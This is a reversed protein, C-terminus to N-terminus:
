IPVEKEIKKKTDEGRSVGGVDGKSRRNKRRKAVYFVEEDAYKPLFNIKGYDSRKWDLWAQGIELGRVAGNKVPSKKDPVGGPMYGWITMKERVRWDVDSTSQTNGFVNTLGKRVQKLNKKAWEIRWWEDGSNQNPFIDEYEDIFVDHWTPIEKLYRILDIWTSRRKFFIVNLRNPDAMKCIKEFVEDQERKKEENDEVDETDPENELEVKYNIKPVHGFKKMPFDIVQGDNNQDLIDIEMGKEVFIDFKPYKVFQIPTDLSERWFMLENEQENRAFDEVLNFFLSTKGSGSAGVFEVANGGPNVNRDRIKDIIEYGVESTKDSIVGM